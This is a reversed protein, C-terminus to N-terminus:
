KRLKQILNYVRYLSTVLPIDINGLYSIKEGQFQQKFKTLSPWLNEDVGGLDYHKMGRHKAEVMARWHLYTTVKSNLHKSSSAGYLFTATQGFFLVFHIAALDGDRYGYFAVMTLNDTNPETFVPVIKFLSDFYIQGPYINKGSNRTITDRALSCFDTYCNKETYDKIEVTVGRREARNINSRTSSHFGALIEDTSSDLRILHNHKPQIYYQPLSFGCDKLNRKFQTIPPELRVFLYHPFEKIVWSRIKKFIDIAEEETHNKIIVPGRPIYGYFFNFPLKHEAIMFLAIIKSNHTILYRGIKRGWAQKFDGWEWTQMFAGVPPYNERVFQNWKQKDGTTTAIIEM